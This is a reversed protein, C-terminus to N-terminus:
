RLADLKYGKTVIGCCYVAFPCRSLTSTISHNSRLLLELDIVDVASLIVQNNSEALNTIDISKM